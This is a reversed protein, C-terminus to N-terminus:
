PSKVTTRGNDKVFVKDKVRKLSSGAITTIMLHQERLLLHIVNGCDGVLTTQNINRCPLNWYLFNRRAASSNIRKLKNGFTFYKKYLNHPLPKELVKEGQWDM